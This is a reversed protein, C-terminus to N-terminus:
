RYGSNWFNSLFNKLSIPLTTNLRQELKSIEDNEIPSAIEDENLDDFSHLILRTKVDWDKEGIKHFPVVINTKHHIEIM